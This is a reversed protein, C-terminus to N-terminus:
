TGMVFGQHKCVLHKWEVQSSQIPCLVPCLLQRAPQAQRPIVLPSEGDPVWRGGRPAWM